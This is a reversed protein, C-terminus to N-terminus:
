MEVTIITKPPGPVALDFEAVTLKGTKFAGSDLNSRIDSYPTPDYEHPTHGHVIHKPFGELDDYDRSWLMTDKPQRDSPYQPDVGGHVFFHHDTEYYHPLDACWNRIELPIEDAGYSQLTADAGNRIWWDWKRRVAHVEIMMDEHNGKLKIWEDGPRDPGARLRAIVQKSQPGRDMYDGLFIVRIPASWQEIHELAKMMLDFRGHIDGIAFTRTIM